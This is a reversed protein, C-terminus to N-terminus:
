DEGPEARRWAEILNSRADTWAPKREMRDIKEFMPHGAHAKLTEDTRALIFWQSPEKGIAREEDSLFVDAAYRGKLGLRDTTSALVEKLSLYRNSIHLAIIGDPKVKRAYLEIAEVTLLHIPIADSSFADLVLVDFKQDPEKGLTLRADGEVIRISGKSHPVYSFYAPNTALRIVVPDIEYFTYLDGPRAYSALSGVGLGVLGLEVPRSLEDYSDIIMGIPGTPYYYTLPVDKTAPDFSQRGHITTGHVLTRYGKEKRDVVRHLGFFSRETYIVAGGANLRMAMAVLFFAGLAGAYRLPKEFLLFALVVPLGYILGTRLGGVGLGIRIAVMGAAYAICGIAIPWLLERWKEFPMGPTWRLAVLAALAIPYEFIGNFLVPAVLANFAGGVVGGLSMMLYFETLHDAAPRTEALENHCALAGLTFVLLHFSAIALIPETSELAIVVALPAMALGVWRFLKVSALPGSRKFAVIFTILYLSLPIVWLLPASAINSTLYTTVGMLLSSPIASLWFWRWRKSRTPRETIELVVESRSGRLGQFACVAVLGALLLFGIAWARAQDPIPAAGEILLPYALLGLLSGVNSAAYLFYPDETDGTQAYWRQLLPAGTSVALYPLGVALALFGILVAAPHLSTQSPDIKPLMPGAAGWTFLLAAAAGFLALHIAAMTKRDVRKPLLNAYAYGLLLVAQFFLLSTNWVAPAGGFAPLVMKAAMPQVMFLLFSGVFIAATFLFRVVSYPSDLSIWLRSQTSHLPAM